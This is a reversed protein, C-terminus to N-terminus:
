ASSPMRSACQHSSNLRTSKRDAEVVKQLTEERIFPMDAPMILWGDSDPRRAIAHALSHGMGLGAWPCFTTDIGYDAALRCHMADTDTDALVVLTDPVLRKLKLAAHLFM